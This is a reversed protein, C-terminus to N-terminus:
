DVGVRICLPPRPPQVPPPTSTPTDPLTRWNRNSMSGSELYESLTLYRRKGPVYSWITTDCRLRKAPVWVLGRVWSLHLSQCPKGTTYIQMEVNWTSVHHWITSHLTVDYDRKQSECVWMRLFSLTDSLAKWTWTNRDRTALWESSMLNRQIVKSQLGRWECLYVRLWFPSSVPLLSHRALSELKEYKGSEMQESLM